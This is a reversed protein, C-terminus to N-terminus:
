HTPTAPAAAPAAHSDGAPAAEGHAAAPAAGSFAPLAPHARPHGQAEYIDGRRQTDALTFAIFIGLFLLSSLFVVLYVKNDYLLHMFFLAVLTGKITAVVMAIILNGIEGVHVYSVMVTIATLIFLIVGIALYLKLPLVHPHFGRKAHGHAAAAPAHAM